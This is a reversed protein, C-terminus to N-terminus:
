FINFSDVFEVFSNDLPGVSEARWFFLLELIANKLYPISREDNEFVRSNRERWITWCVGLSHSGLYFEEEQTYVFVLFSILGQNYWSDGM